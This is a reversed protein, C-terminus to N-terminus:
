SSCLSEIFGDVTETEEGCASIEYRQELLNTLLPLRWSDSDPVQYYTYRLKLYSPSLSPNCQFELAM